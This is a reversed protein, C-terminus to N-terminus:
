IGNDFESKAYNSIRRKHVKDKLYLQGFDSKTTPVGSLNQIITNVLYCAAKVFNGTKKHRKTM